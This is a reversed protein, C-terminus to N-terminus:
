TPLDGQLFRTVVVLDEDVLYCGSRELARILGLPPQECFVGEVVVRINDLPEREVSQVAELYDELLRSHEEVALITGARLLLYLEYTPVQWPRDSRLDYLQEVLRRNANYTRISERLADDSIARGALQELEGRFLLLEQRYFMGGIEPRFNQPFDFYRVYKQPFSVQWVGSLNRIVDCISPCLMGDLPDLRGSLGLEVISRPIHCIYSQYYADGRIIEVQDGGGLIGVPLMGAAHLLERPVYVPLYGIARGGPHREKWAQVYGLSLDHYLASCHDIISQIKRM